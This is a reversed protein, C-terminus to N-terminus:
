LHAAGGAILASIIAIIIGAGVSVILKVALDWRKDRSAEKGEIKTM